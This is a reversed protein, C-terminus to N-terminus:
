NFALYPNHYVRENVNRRRLTALTEQVAFYNEKKNQMYQPVRKAKKIVKTVKEWKNSTLLLMDVEIIGVLDDVDEISVLGKPVIIYNYNGRMSYGNKLDALTAKAEISYIHQIPYPIDKATAFLKPAKLATVSFDDYYPVNRYGFYERLKPKNQIYSVGVVDSIKKTGYKSVLPKKRAILCETGIERIKTMNYLWFCGVQKLLFHTRTENQPQLEEINKENIYKHRTNYLNSKTM